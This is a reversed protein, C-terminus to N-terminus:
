YNTGYDFTLKYDIDAIREAFLELSKLKTINSKTNYSWEIPM